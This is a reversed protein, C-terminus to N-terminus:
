DNDFLRNQYANAEEQPMDAIELALLLMKLLEEEARADANYEVKVEEITPQIKPLRARRYLKSKSRTTNSM